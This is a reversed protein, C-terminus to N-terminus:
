YRLVLDTIKGDGQLKLSLPYIGFKFYKLATCFFFECSCCRNDLLGLLFAVAALCTLRELHGLDADVDRPRVARSPVYLKLSNLLPM